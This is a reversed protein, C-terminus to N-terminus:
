VGVETGTHRLTCVTCSQSDSDLYEWEWKCHKELFFIALANFIDTTELHLFFCALECILDCLLLM